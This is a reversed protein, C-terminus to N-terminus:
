FGLSNLFTLIEWRLWFRLWFNFIVLLIFLFVGVAFGWEFALKYVSIPKTKDRRKFIKKLFNKM